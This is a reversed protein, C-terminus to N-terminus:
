VILQIVIASRWCHLVLLAALICVLRSRKLTLLETSLSRQRQLANMARTDSAAAERKYQLLEQQLLVCHRRLASSDFTSHLVELAEIRDQADFLEVRRGVEQRFLNRWVQVEATLQQM